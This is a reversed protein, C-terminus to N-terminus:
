PRSFDILITAPSRLRENPQLGSASLTASEEVMVRPPKIELTQASAQALAAAFFVNFVRLKLVSEAEFDIISAHERPRRLLISTIPM